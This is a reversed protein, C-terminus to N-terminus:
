ERTQVYYAPISFYTATPTVSSTAESKVTRSREPQYRVRLTNGSVSEELTVLAYAPVGDALFAQLLQDLVALTPRDPLVVTEERWTQFKTTDM